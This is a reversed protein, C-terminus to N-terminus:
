TKENSKEKNDNPNIEVLFSGNRRRLVMTSNLECLKLFKDHWEPPVKMVLSGGARFISFRCGILKKM